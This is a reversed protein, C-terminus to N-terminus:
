RSEKRRGRSPPGVCDESLKHLPLALDRGSPRRAMQIASAGMSTFVVGMQIACVARPLPASGELHPGAGDPYPSPGNRHRHSADPSRHGGDPLSPARRFPTPQWRSRSPRWRSPLSGRPFGEEIRAAGRSLVGGGSRVSHAGASTKPATRLEESGDWSRQSPRWAGSVWGLTKRSPGSSRLDTGLDKPVTGSSRPDM